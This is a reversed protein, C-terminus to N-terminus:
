NHGGQVDSAEMVVQSDFALIDYNKVDNLHKIGVDGNGEEGLGSNMENNVDRRYFLVGIKPDLEGVDTRQFTNFMVLENFINDVNKFENAQLHPESEDLVMTNEVSDIVQIPAQSFYRTSTLIKYRRHDDIREFDMDSIDSGHSQNITIDLDNREAVPHTICYSPSLRAPNAMNNEVEDRRVQPLQGADDNKVNDNVSLVSKKGFVKELSQAAGDFAELDVNNYFWNSGIFLKHFVILHLTLILSLRNM